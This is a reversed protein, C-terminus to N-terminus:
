NGSVNAFDKTRGTLAESIKQRTEPSKMTNHISYECKLKTFIRSNMIKHKGMIMGLAYIMKQYYVGDFMKCLLRHVIYHERITLKVINCENKAWEQKFSRPVIHHKEYLEEIIVRKQANKIINCYWITYKNPLAKNQIYQLFM